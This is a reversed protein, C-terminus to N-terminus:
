QRRQNPADGGAIMDAMSQMASANMIAVAELALEPTAAGRHLIKTAAFSLAMATTIEDLGLSKAAPVTERVLAEALASMAVTEEQTPHGTM